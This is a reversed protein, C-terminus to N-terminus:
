FISGNECEMYEIDAGACELKVMILSLLALGATETRLIRKGLSVMPVQRAKALQIEAPSFGGEPGIMVGIRNEPKIKGIERCTGAMGLHHEYALMQIQCGGMQDLARVYPIAEDVAPILSRKSQKAASEAIAQWRKQKAAAKKQELKVITNETIVPVIRAAGLEVSKQIIWEFKDAKPLGQYLIIEAPLERGEQSRVIKVKIEEKSLSYVEGLYDTKSGDSVLIEEGPTIRLVNKGHNVDSGTISIFPAQIQEPKVFFHHM